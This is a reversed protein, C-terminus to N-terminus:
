RRWHGGIMAAPRPENRISRMCSRQRGNRDWPTRFLLTPTPDLAGIPPPETGIAFRLADDSRGNSM